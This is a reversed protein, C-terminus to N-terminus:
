AGPEETEKDTIESEEYHLGNNYYRFAILHRASLWAFLLYQLLPLERGFVM